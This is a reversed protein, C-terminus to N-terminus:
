PDLLCVPKKLTLVVLEKLCLLAPTGDTTASAPLPKRHVVAVLRPPNSAKQASHAVAPEQGRGPVIGFSEASRRIVEFSRWGKEVKSLPKM